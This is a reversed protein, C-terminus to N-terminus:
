QGKKSIRQAFQTCYDQMQQWADSNAEVPMQQLVVVTDRFYIPARKRAWFQSCAVMEGDTFDDHRRDGLDMIMYTCGDMDGRTGVVYTQSRVSYQPQINNEAVVCADPPVLSKVDNLADIHAGEEWGFIPISSPTFFLPNYAIWFVLMASMMAGFMLPLARKSRQELYARLRAAGYIAGVMVAPIIAATYHMYIDFQQQYSSLFSLGLTPLAVLLPAPALLSVFAVPGLLKILFAIKMLTDPGSVYAWIEPLNGSFLWSYRSAHIPLGNTAHRLLPFVIFAHVLFWGVGFVFWIITRRWGRKYRWALFLAFFAVNLGMEEKCLLALILWIDTQRWARRDAAEFAFALFTTAPAIEHFDWRNIWGLPPYLLWLAAFLPPVWWEPFYRKALRAIPWAGVGLIITQAILMMRPDPWIWMLPALLITIYPAHIGLMNDQEAITNQLFRGHAANWTLQTFIGLDWGTSNYREYRGITFICFVVIYLAMLAIILKYSRPVRISAIM